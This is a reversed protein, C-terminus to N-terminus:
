SWTILALGRQYLTNRSIDGRKMKISSILNARSKNLYVPAFIEDDALKKIESKQMHVWKCLLAPLPTSLDKNLRLLKTSKEWEAGELQVGTVIFCDDDVTQGDLLEVKLDLEDLSWMHNQAVYQRTATLYAEPFLLGGMWVGQKQYGSVNMIRTFQDIRKKFDAIWETVTINLVTYRRWTAPIQDAHLESALQRLEQTSQTTGDCVGKLDTLKSRLYSLLNSAVTVEREIFRFLPNQISNADRALKPLSEPLISLYSKLRQGLEKLWKVQSEGEQKKKEEELEIEVAEDENVDQIELLKKIIHNTLTERVIREVNNPLGSWAPSEVSPLKDIWEEFQSFKKVDPIKIPQSGEPALFLEFDMNYSKATFFQGILGDLIKNDYQNDIKGGYLNQALICQLADWPIKDPDVNNRQGMGDLYEDILDLACRQDAENFEYVKTWGIPTYRLREQIVAHVWALLFHLRTRETPAKDSRAPSLVTKFTRILSAKIGDPPEFVCKYSQRLLTRPIKPNFETTLFLRFNEHLQLRYIKKEVESLWQPALHVNKLLVWSGSKAAAIIAKDALDYGEASGIAVSTIKKNTERVLQEVKFSPDNGPASSLLIPAKSSSEKEVVVKMDVPPVDLINNGLVKKVFNSAVVSFKDSRFLKIIALDRCILSVEREFPNLKSNESNEYEENEWGSPIREDPNPDDLFALWQATNNNLHAVLNKYRDMYSFEELLQLQSYKLKGDIITNSLKTEIVKCPKIILNFHDHLSLPLKIQALRLAFILKDNNLLSNAIRHYTQIFLEDYIFALRKQPESKDIKKLNEDKTILNFLTDMFFSLSFQYLYHVNSLSQMAFFMRSSFKSLEVYTNTVTTVEEMVKDSKAMEEQVKGSEMKLTELTSIVQENDLINGQVNSLADLLSDELERLKVVYEGQLKLLNVRKQEVDQRENRLYINLCQNQLSSPTVTFNVFTVRSCLDPTFFANADRTIMFLSFSPSFDIEQDGVRMLVRGGTKFTEKNLVSNLIPDIKEVDQVLLPCGFRLSTELNKMFSDDAFSTQSIKKEKYFSLIFDLAQGSPDIILPYRNFKSLIIANETCLDDAPLKHSQWILKESPKTLFRDRICM